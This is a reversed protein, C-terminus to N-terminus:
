NKRLMSQYVQYYKEAGKDLSFWEEAGARIQKASFQSPDFICKEMTQQDLDPLVMGAQSSVIIHDTDGVGANCIVPIGMAMLEGQKTPSSASKSFTPRIFFLALDFLSTYVPVATHTVRKVIIESEPIGWKKAARLITDAPEGSLFFFSSQKHKKRQVAYFALMEDLMYWTGISGVYGFVVTEASLKMTKRIEQVKSEEIVDPDFKELDVCCPIVTIPATTKGFADNEEIIKKGKETLSVVADAREFFQKEKKRFYSYIMKFLPHKLNWIKGEVREDAWFGRMDFLFRIGSQQQLQYGILGPIDSRCHTADFNHQKSLALAKKKLKQYNRVASFVPIRSEYTLPHWQIGHAGCIENIKEVEAAHASKELSILDFQVGKKSLKKLYPLVQSQGLNDTMGDYSIYLVRM